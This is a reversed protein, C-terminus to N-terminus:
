SSGLVIDFKGTLAAAGNAQVPHLEVVLRDRAAPDRVGMLVPDAANAPEGAVYMQTIFRELGRASIAFHIHPTRGPYPV